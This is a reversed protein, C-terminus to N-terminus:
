WGFLWSFFKGFADLMTTHPTGDPLTNTSDSGFVPNFSPNSWSVPFLGYLLVGINHLICGILRFLYTFIQLFDSFINGDFDVTPFPEINETVYKIYARFTFTHELDTGTLEFLIAFLCTVFLFAICVKKM